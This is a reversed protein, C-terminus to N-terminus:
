RKEERYLDWLAHIETYVQFETCNFDCKMQEYLYTQFEMLENGKLGTISSLNEGGIMQEFQEIKQSNKKLWFVKRASKAERSFNYYFYSIPSTVLFGASKVAEEDMEFPIYDPDQTPLDLSEGLTQQHPMGIMAERFDAYTSGWEFIRAEELEYYRHRLRIQPNSTLYAASVLTDRYAINRILLTDAPSVRLSFIGLSDTVDGEHSDMNIVHSAPLPRFLEDYVIGTITFSTDAAQGSIRINYLLLGLGTFLLIRAAM